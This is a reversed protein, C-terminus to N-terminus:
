RPPRPQWFFAVPTSKGRAITEMADELCEDDRDGITRLRDQVSVLRQRLEEARGHLVANAERQESLDVALDRVTVPTCGEGAMCQELTWGGGYTKESM